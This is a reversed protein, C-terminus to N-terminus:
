LFPQFRLVIDMEYTRQPYGAPRLTLRRGLLVEAFYGRVLETSNVDESMAGAEAGLTSRKKRRGKHTRFLVVNAPYLRGTEEDENGVLSLFGQQCEIKQPTDGLAVQQEDELANM